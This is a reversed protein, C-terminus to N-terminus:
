WTCAASPRLTSPRTLALSTPVSRKSTPPSPSSHQQLQVCPSLATSVAAAMKYRHTRPPHTYNYLPFSTHLDINLFSISCRARGSPNESPLLRCGHILRTRIRGKGRRRKLVSDFKLPPVPLTTTFSREHRPKGEERRQFGKERSFTLRWRASGNGNALDRRCNFGGKKM